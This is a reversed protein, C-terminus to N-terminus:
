DDHEGYVIRVRCRADQELTLITVSRFVIEPFYRRAADIRPLVFEFSRLTLQDFFGSITGLAPAADQLEIGAWPEDGLRHGDIHGCAQAFSFRFWLLVLDNVM